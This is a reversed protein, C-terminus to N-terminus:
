GVHISRDGPLDQPLLFAFVWSLSVEPSHSPKMKKGLKVKKRKEDLKQTRAAAEKKARRVRDYAAQWPVLVVTPFGCFGPSFSSLLSYLSLLSQFGALLPSAAAAEQAVLKALM